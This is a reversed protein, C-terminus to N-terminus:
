SISISSPNGKIDLTIAFGLIKIQGGRADIVNDNKTNPQWKFGGSVADLAAINLEHTETNM